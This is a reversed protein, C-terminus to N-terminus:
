MSNRCLYDALKRAAEPDDRLLGCAVNCNHCLLGRVKGTLHDHDVRLSGKRSDEAYISCIACRNEQASLVQEYQEQTIGYKDALHYARSKKLIAARNEKYYDKFRTTKQAKTKQHYDQAKQRMAERNSLRRFDQKVQKCQKCSSEYREGSKGTRTKYAHRYFGDGSKEIGCSVCRKLRAVPRHIGNLICGKCTASTYSGVNGWRSKKYTTEFESKSKSIGCGLCLKVLQAIIM